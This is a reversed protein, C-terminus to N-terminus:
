FGSKGVIEGTRADVDIWVVQGGRMFKLRYRGAALHFEPGIYDFGRMHPLIRNEIARLPMIRGEQTKRFIEDQERDRPRADATAIAAAGLAAFLLLTRVIMTESSKPHFPPTAYSRAM